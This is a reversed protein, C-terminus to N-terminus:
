MVFKFFNLIFLFVSYLLVPLSWRLINSFQQSPFFPWFNFFFLLFHVICVINAEYSCWIQKRYSIYSDFWPLFAQLLFLISICCKIDWVNSTQLWEVLPQNVKSIATQIKLRLFFHNLSWQFLSLKQISVTVHTSFKDWLVMTCTVTTQLRKNELASNNATSWRPPTTSKSQVM